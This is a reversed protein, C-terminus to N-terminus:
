GMGSAFGSGSMMRKLLNMDMQLTQLAQQVQVEFQELKKLRAEMNYAAGEEVMSKTRLPQEYSPAHFSGIDVKNTNVNKNNNKNADAMNKQMSPIDIGISQLRILQKRGLEETMWRYLTTREIGLIKALEIVKENKKMDPDSEPRWKEIWQSLLDGTHAKITASKGTGKKATQAM